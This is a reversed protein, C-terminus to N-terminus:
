DALSRHVVEWVSSMVLSVYRIPLDTSAAIEELSIKELKFPQLLLQRSAWPFLIALAQYVALRDTWVPKGDLPEQLDLPLVIKECLRDFEEETMVRCDIPDLIHILEKCCVLRQWDKRLNKSYGIDICNVIQGDKPYEWNEIRGKLIDTNLDEEWFYLEM